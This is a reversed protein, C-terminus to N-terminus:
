RPQNGRKVLKANYVIERVQGDEGEIENSGSLRQFEQLYSSQSEKLESIEARLGKVKENVHAVDPRKLIENKTNTKIRSAEKAAEAHQKFVEDNEFVSALMENQAKLEETLKDIRSINSKIMSELNLLVIGQGDQAAQTPAEEVIEGESVPTTAINTDEDM